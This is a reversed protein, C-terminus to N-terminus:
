GGRDGSRRQVDYVDVATAQALRRFTQTHNGSRASAAEVDSGLRIRVDGTQRLDVRRKEIRTPLLLDKSGIGVEHKRAGALAEGFLTEVFQMCRRLWLEHDDEVVRLCHHVADDLVRKDHNGGVSPWSM